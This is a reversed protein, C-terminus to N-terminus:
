LKSDKEVAKDVAKHIASNFGSEQLSTVAEITTGGPSCVKDILEYPHENSELIMKASGLVAQASIKLAVDKKMGNKVGARALEDIFMYALAPTCGGLVGFLPFYNEELYIIKGVASFIKETLKKDEDTAKANATYACIAESVKANINPMVRIIRNDHTLENAIFETSKGAAISIILTNKNGLAGDIKKLVSSLINPKVALVVTDSNKVIEEENGFVNINYKAKIGDTAPAYVDFVNVEEAKVAKNDIIGCIIASAMNGCGIFGISM